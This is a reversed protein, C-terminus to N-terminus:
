EYDKEWKKIQEILNEACEYRGDLIGLERSDVDDEHCQERVDSIEGKLWTKIHNIVNVKRNIEDILIDKSTGMKKVEKKTLYLKRFEEEQDDDCLQCRYYDPQVLTVFFEEFMNGCGDCAIM